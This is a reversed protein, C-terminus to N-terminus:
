RGPRSRTGAISLTSIIHAQAPKRIQAFGFSCRPNSAV